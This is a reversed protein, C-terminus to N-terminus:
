IRPFYQFVSPIIQPNSKTKKLIKGLSFIELSKLRRICKRTLNQTSVSLRRPWTKRLNHLINRAVDPFQTVNSM